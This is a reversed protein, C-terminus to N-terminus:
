RQRNLGRMWSRLAALERRVGEAQGRETVAPLEILDGNRQIDNTASQSATKPMPAMGSACGALGLLGAVAVLPGIRRMSRRKRGAASVGAEPRDNSARSGPWPELERPYREGQIEVQSAARDIERLDDASLEIQAFNARRAASQSASSHL